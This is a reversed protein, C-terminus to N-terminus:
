LPVGHKKRFEDLGYLPLEIKIAHGGHMECEVECALCENCLRKLQEATGTLSPKGDEIKFCSRGYWRDAKICAFGCTPAICKALDVIVKGTEFEFSIPNLPQEKTEVGADLTKAPAYRKKRYEEVLTIMREAIFDMDYIRDCGYLEWSLPIGKLGEMIIRHTEREKNGAILILVPFGPRHKAEERLAKAIAYGHYWQEQNAMVAGALCYGEIGPLSLMAKIARYVKSATPNGSTDVYTALKLGKRLLADAALMSAGGGIGHFAIYGGKKIEEINPILQVFYCTGRYDQEEIKWAIKELETPPRLMDRPLEIAFEPHRFVSNDDLTIRCDGALVRGDKTLILPNIEVTNADVKVFLDYLKCAVDSIASVLYPQAMLKSILNRADSSQFGRLYNIQMISVKEPQDEAVKEVDVGGETSFLIIPARIKYSDSVTISLFYEKEVDLKEEVLLKEVKLGKIEKGLIESAISKAEQPNNAFKIGGAKFRGTTLVQAKVAVPKGIKEAIEKAENSTSAVGGRPIPIGTAELLAKGQYEYLRVM